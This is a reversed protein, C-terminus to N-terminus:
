KHQELHTLSRLSGNHSDYVKNHVSITKNDRMEKRARQFTTRSTGLRLIADQLDTSWMSGGAAHLQEIILRKCQDREAARSAKGGRLRRFEEDRMQTCGKFHVQGDEIEFLVTDRLPAYSNKEHSVYRTKDDPTVGVMWVARAIDWLDSSDSIKDRGSASRKNTHCVVLFATGIETGLRVLSTLCERMENRSGMNIGRPLFGQIPDIVCLAPRMDRVIAALENSGIKVKAVQTDYPDDVNLVKIKTADAGAKRLRKSVVKAISEEATLVLVTDPSRQFGKPDLISRQGSSVAAALNAWMSSKGSGGDGALLTISGNPIGWPVLWEADEETVESLPIVGLFSQPKCEPPVWKPAQATLRVLMSRAGDVGWYDILDTLNGSPPIEPWAASLPAVSVSAAAGHLAAAVELAYRKSPGGNGQVICVACGRLEETYEPQWKGRGAGDMGCVATFGLAGVANANEQGEVVYVASNPNGSRYLCPPQHKAPPMAGVAGAAVNVITNDM